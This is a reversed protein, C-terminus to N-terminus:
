RRGGRGGLLNNLQRTNLKQARSAAEDRHREASQARMQESAMDNLSQKKQSQVRGLDAQRASLRSQVDQANATLRQAKAQLTKWQKLENAMDKPFESEIETVSMNAAKAREKDVARNLDGSIVSVDLESQEAAQASQTYGSQLSAWSAQDNLNPLLKSIELNPNYASPDAGTTVEGTKLDRIQLNGNSDMHHAVSLSRDGLFKDLELEAKQAQGQNTSLQTQAGELRHQLTQGDTTHRITFDRLANQANDNAQVADNQAAANQGTLENVEARALTEAQGHEQAQQGHMEAQSAAQSHQDQYDMMQTKATEKSAKEHRVMRGQRAASHINTMISEAGGEDPTKRMAATGAGILAASTGGTAAAAATAGGVSLAKTAAKKSSQVLKNSGYKELRTTQLSWRRFKKWMLLMAVLGAIFFAQQILPLLVVSMAGAGAVQAATFIQQLISMLLMLVGLMLGLAVRKVATASVWGAWDLMLRPGKVISGIFYLGVLIFYLAMELQYAFMMMGVFCLSLVVTGTVPYALLAPAIRSNLDDRGSAANYSSPDNNKLGYMIAARVAWKKMCLEGGKYAAEDLDELKDPSSTSRCRMSPNDKMAQMEAGTYTQTWRMYDSTSPVGNANDTPVVGKPPLHISGFNQDKMDDLATDGKKDWFVKISAKSDDAWDITDATGGDDVATIANLQKNAQQGAAGFAWVPTVFQSTMNTTMCSIQQEKPSGVGSSDDGSSKCDGGNFMLLLSTSVSSTANNVAKGLTPMLPTTSVVLIMGSAIAAWLLNSMGEKFRRRILLGVVIILAIVIILNGWDRFLTNDIQRVVEQVTANDLVRSTIETTFAINLLFGMLSAFAILGSLFFGSVMTTINYGYDMPNCVSTAYTSWTLGGTGYGAGAGGKGIYPSGDPIVFADNGKVRTYKGDFADNSANQPDPMQYNTDCVDLVGAHAINPVILQSLFNALTLVTVLLAAWTLARMVKHAFMPGHLHLTLM